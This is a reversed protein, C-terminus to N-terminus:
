NAIAAYRGAGHGSSGAVSASLPIGQPVTVKLVQGAGAPLGFGSQSVYLNGDPGFTMGTPFTFGSAITEPSGTSSVKVIMGTGLNTPGPLGANTASELAYMQGFRDFAVGVVTTLGTAAVTVTGSPTIQLIKESGPTIPFTGLNGVFFSGANYAVSTPVIHGQTASIDALRTIAGTTPDVMDIEGHNPDVAYLTGNVDIMSYWTGDPEFDDPEITKTPNAQEFSGLNAILSATGYLTDIRYVGNASNLVGHSCGAGSELAYMTNGVFAISAVGSVLSGLAASTQDSPLADTITSRVGASSIKSIRGGTPSGSYPGTPVPVQACQGVTTATGGLGGEAVYLNGDPGFTLGRPNNLGTAFVSVNSSPTPLTQSEGVSTFGPLATVSAFGIFSAATGVRLARQLNM